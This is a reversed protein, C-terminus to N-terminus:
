RESALCSPSQIANVARENGGMSAQRIGTRHMWVWSKGSESANGAHFATTGQDATLNFEVPQAEPVRQLVFYSVTAIATITIAITIRDRTKLRQPFRRVALRVARLRDRLGRHPDSPTERGDRIRRGKAM